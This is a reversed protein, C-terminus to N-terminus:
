ETLSFSLDILSRVTEEPLIGVQCLQGTTGGDLVITVWNAKNMHYAPFYGATNLLSPIMDRECKLNMIELRGEGALGLKESRINLIIGFWKKNEKHRFVWSDPDKEWPSDPFIGYTKKIYETVAKRDM